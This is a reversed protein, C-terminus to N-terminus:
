MFVIDSKLIDSFKGMGKHKDYVTTEVGLISFSEKLASGVFGCGIQSVTNIIKSTQFM